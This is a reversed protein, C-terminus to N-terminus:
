IIHARTDINEFIFNTSLVNNWISAACSEPPMCKRTHLDKHMCMSQMCALNTEILQHARYVIDQRLDFKILAFADLSVNSCHIAVRVHNIDLDFKLSHEQSLM